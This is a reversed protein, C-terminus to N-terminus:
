IKHKSKRKPILYGYKGLKNMVVEHYKMALNYVNKGKLFTFCAKKTKEYDEVPYFGPFSQLFDLAKFCSSLEKEKTEFEKLETPSLDQIICLKVSVMCDFGRKYNGDVYSFQAYSLLKNMQFTLGEALNWSAQEGEAIQDPEGINIPLGKEIVIKKEM